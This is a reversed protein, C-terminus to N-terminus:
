TSAEDAGKTKGERQQVVAHVCCYTIVLANALVLVALFGGTWFLLLRMRALELEALVHPSAPVPGLVLSTTNSLRRSGDPLLATMLLEAFDISLELPGSLQM